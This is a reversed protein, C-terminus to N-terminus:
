GYKSIRAKLCSFIGHGHPIGQSQVMTRRQRMDRVGGLIRIRLATEDKFFAHRNFPKSQCNRHWM